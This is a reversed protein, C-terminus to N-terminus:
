QAEDREYLPTRYEEEAQKRWKEYSRVLEETEPSPNLHSAMYLFRGYLNPHTYNRDMIVAPNGTPGDRVVTAGMLALSVMSIDLSTNFGASQRDPNEWDSAAANVQEAVFLDAEKEFAKMLTDKVNPGSLSLGSVSRKHHGHHLHGVEHLLCITLISVPDRDGYKGLLRENLQPVLDAEVFVLDEEPPIFAIRQSMERSQIGYVPILEYSNAEPSKEWAPYLRQSVNTGLVHNATDIARVIQLQADFSPARGHKAVVQEYSDVTPKDARRSPTAVSCGTLVILTMLQAGRM